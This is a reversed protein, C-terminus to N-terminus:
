KSDSIENERFISEFLIDNLDKEENPLTKRLYIIAEKSYDQKEIKVEKKEIEIKDIIPITSTASLLILFPKIM